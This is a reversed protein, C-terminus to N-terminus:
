SISGCAALPMITDAKWIMTKVTKGKVGTLLYGREIFTGGEEVTITDYTLISELENGNYVATIVVANCAEEVYANVNAYITDNDGIEYIDTKEEEIGVSYSVAPVPTLTFSHFYAAGWGVNELRLLEDTDSIYIIGLDNEGPVKYKYANAELNDVNEAAKVEVSELAVRTAQAETTGLSATYQTTANVASLAVNVKLLYLGEKVASVDYETWDGNANDGKQHHIAQTGDLMKAFYSNGGVDYYYAGINDYSAGNMKLELIKPAASKGNFKLADTVTNEDSKKTLSFSNVVVVQSYDNNKLSITKSGRPIYIDIEANQSKGTAVNALNTSNMPLVTKRALVNDILFEFDTQYGDGGRTFYSIDLTYTGGTLSSIDYKAWEGAQRLMLTNEGNSEIKHENPKEDTPVAKSLDNDFFAEGQGGSVVGFRPSTIELTEVDAETEDAMVTFGLTFMM